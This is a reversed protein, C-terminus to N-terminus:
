YADAEISNAFVLSQTMGLVNLDIEVLGFNPGVLGFDGALQM